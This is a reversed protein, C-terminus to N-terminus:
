LFIAVNIRFYKVTLLKIKVMFRGAILLMVAMVFLMIMIKKFKIEDAAATAIIEDIMFGISQDRAIQHQDGFPHDMIGLIFIGLM